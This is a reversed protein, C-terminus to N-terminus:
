SIASRLFAQLTGENFSRFRERVDESRDERFVDGTSHHAIHQEGAASEQRHFKISGRWLPPEHFVALEAVWNRGDHQLHRVDITAPAGKRPGVSFEMEEAHARRHDLYDQAWLEFPPLPLVKRCEQVLLSLPDVVEGTIQGRARRYLERVGARPLMAPLAAAQQDCYADYRGRLLKQAGGGETTLADHDAATPATTM